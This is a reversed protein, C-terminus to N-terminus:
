DISRTPLKVPVGITLSPNLKFPDYDIPYVDLHNFGSGNMHYGHEEVWRYLQEYSKWAHQGKHETIAYDHSPIIIKHMDPPIPQSKIAETGIYYTFGDIRDHYSLGILNSHENTLQLEQLRDKSAQIVPQISGHAAAEYTGTWKLGIFYFSSKRMIRCEKM